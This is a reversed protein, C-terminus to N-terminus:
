SSLQFLERACIVDHLDVLRMPPLWKVVGADAATATVTTGPGHVWELLGDITPMALFSPENTDPVNPADPVDDVESHPYACFAIISTNIFQGCIEIILANRAM